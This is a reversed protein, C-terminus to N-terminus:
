RLSASGQVPYGRKCRGSDEPATRARAALRSRTPPGMCFPRRLIVRDPDCACAGVLDTFGLLVAAIRAKYQTWPRNRVTLLFARHDAPIISLPWASAIVKPRHITRVPPPGRCGTGTATLCSTPLDDHRLDPHVVERHRQIPEAGARPLAQIGREPMRFRSCSHNKGVRVKRAMCPWGPPLVPTLSAKALAQAGPMPASIMPRPLNPGCWPGQGSWSHFPQHPSAGGNRVGTKTRVWWGRGGTWIFPPVM